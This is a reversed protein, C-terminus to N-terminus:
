WRRFIQTLQFIGIHDDFLRHTQIWGNWGNRAKGIFIQDCPIGDAPATRQFVIWQGDYSWYAEANDGGFTLQRVNKFHTEEPYLITDKATLTSYHTTLNRSKFSVFVMILMMASLGFVLKRM